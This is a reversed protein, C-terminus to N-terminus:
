QLILTETHNRYVQATRESIKSLQFLLTEGSFPKKIVDGIGADRAMEAIKRDGHLSTLVGATKPFNSKVYVGIKASTKVTM